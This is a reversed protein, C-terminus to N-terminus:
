VLSQYKKPSIPFHQILTSLHFAYEVVVLLLFSYFSYSKSYKCSSVPTLHVYISACIIITVRLMLVAICYLIIAYQPLERNSVTCPMLSISFFVIYLYFTTWFLTILKPNINDMLANCDNECTNNEFPISVYLFAVDIDNSGLCISQSCSTANDCWESFAPRGYDDEGRIYAGEEFFPITSSLVNDRAELLAFSYLSLPLLFLFVINWKYKPTSKNM